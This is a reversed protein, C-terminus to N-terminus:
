DNTQVHKKFLYFFVGFVVAGAGGMEGILILTREM